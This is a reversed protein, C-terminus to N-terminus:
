ERKKLNTQSRQLYQMLADSKECLKIHADCNTSDGDMDCYGIEKGFSLNEPKRFLPCREGEKMEARKEKKRMYINGWFM